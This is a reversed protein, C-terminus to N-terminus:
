RTTFGVLLSVRVGSKSPVVALNIPFSLTGRRVNVGAALAIATGATTINPGVGFEIGNASRVGVLWTLSPLLTSQEIGGVLLVWETLCVLGGENGAIQKEWQWGFQSVVPKLDDFSTTDAIKDRVGQSLFTVGVRPGSLNLKKPRPPANPPLDSDAEGGKPQVKPAPADREVAATQPGPDASGDHAPAIWSDDGPASARASPSVASIVIVSVAIALVRRLM